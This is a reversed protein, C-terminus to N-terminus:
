QGWGRTFVARVRGTVTTAEEKTLVDLASGDIVVGERYIRVPADTWLRREAGRWRLVRTELRFGDGSTVVVNGRIELDQTQRYFDGEEGVITWTRDHDQVRVRVRHLTTRGQRDFVSAQDATLQWRSGGASEEELQVQKINLDAASPAPGIPETRLTRSRAVLIGAVVLVFVIVVALIRRALRDM